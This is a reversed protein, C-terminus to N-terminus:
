NAALETAATAATAAAVDEKTAEQSGLTPVDQEKDTKIPPPLRKLPLAPLTGSDNEVEQVATTKTNIKLPLEIQNEVEQVAVKKQEPFIQVQRSTKSAKRDEEKKKGGGCACCDLFVMIAIVFVVCLVPLVNLLTDIYSLDDKANTELMKMLACMYILTLGLASAVSSLDESYNLYPTTALVLLLHFLMILIASLVQSPSGPALLVLGGCMLSKNLLVM